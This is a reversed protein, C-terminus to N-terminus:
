EEFGENKIENVLRGHELVVTRQAVEAVEPDHTVVILTTGQRHLQKFIDIVINENAEDLNGTPEDALIIEPHNILARAICVRQQEGGSLLEGNKDFEKTMVTNEKKEFSNIKNLIGAKELSASVIKEDGNILPRLMVNEAATVAFIHYDQMVSAFMDRYEALPLNKINEGGYLIEGECNYLRLLLKVLTTKGSGNQGVLAIKEKSGIKLSINKLAYDEAGATLFTACLVTFMLLFARCRLIYKRSFMIEGVTGLMKVM